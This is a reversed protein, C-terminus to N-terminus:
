LGKPKLHLSIYAVMIRPRSRGSLCGVRTVGEERARRGDAELTIRRSLLLVVDGCSLGKLVKRHCEGPDVFRQVAPSEGTERAEDMDKKDGDLCGPGAKEWSM